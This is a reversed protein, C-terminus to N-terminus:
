KASSFAEKIRDFPFLGKSHHHNFSHSQTAWDDRKRSPRSWFDNCLSFSSVQDISNIFHDRSNRLDVQDVSLLYAFINLLIEGRLQNCLIIYFDVLLDDLYLLLFNAGEVGWGASPKYFSGCRM